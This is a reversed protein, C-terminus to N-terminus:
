SPFHYGSPRVWFDGQKGQPSHSLWPGTVWPSHRQSREREREKM